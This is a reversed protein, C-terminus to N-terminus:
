IADGEYGHQVPLTFSFTLGPGDNRQAWLRGGHSEVITRSISLGMGMGNSKTTFFSQFMQELDGDPPGDGGDRVSFMIRTEDDLSTNVSVVRSDPPSDRGAEFANRLLNVLVQEIQIRDAVIPPLPETLNFRVVTEAKRAEFDVLRTVDRIMQNPDFVTQTPKSKSVFGRLRRIIGGARDAQESIQELLESIDEAKDAFAIRLKRRCVEAFSAIACLPQNLEHALEAVTKGMTSLRAFHSLEARHQQAQEEARHREEMEALLKANVEALEATRQRVRAELEKHALRLQEESKRLEREAEELREEQRLRIFTQDVVAPLLKMFSAGKVLYDRAGRKMMDVAVTENGHGTAVIFPVDFGRASMQDMLECGLLDPLIYDLLVLKASNRELWALAEGGTSVGETLYGRDALRRQILDLLGRDDEVVLITPAATESDPKRDDPCSM